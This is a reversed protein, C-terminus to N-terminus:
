IPEASPLNVLFGERIQRVNADATSTWGWKNDTHSSPLGVLDYLDAVSAVDYTDIIDTLRELVLDAEDRTSLIIEGADQRRRSGSSLPLPPQDPLIGPYRSSSGRSSTNYTTRPAPRHDLPRARRAEGYIVRDIGAKSADAFLNKLAPIIVDGAVYSAAGRFEGAFFIDKFRKTLPTQKKIVEGVVVKQVDKPPPADKKEEGTAKRSNAPFNDM